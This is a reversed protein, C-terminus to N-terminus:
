PCPGVHIANGDLTCATIAPPASVIFDVVLTHAVGHISFTCTVSNASGPASDRIPTAFECVPRSISSAEADEGTGVGSVFALAFLATAVAVAAVVIALSRARM